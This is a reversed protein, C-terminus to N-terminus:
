EPAPTGAEKASTEGSLKRLTRRLRIWEENATTANLAEAESVMLTRELTLRMNRLATAAHLEGARAEALKTTLGQPACNDDASRTKWETRLQDTEGHGPRGREQERVKENGGKARFPLSDVM